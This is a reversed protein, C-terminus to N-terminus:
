RITATTSAFGWRDGGLGARQRDRRAELVLADFRALMDNAEGKSTADVNPQKLCKGAAYECMDMHWDIPVEPSADPKSVDLDCIPLRAVRLVIQLGAQAAAPPPAVRITRSGTDTAIALPAGPIALTTGAIAAQEGIDFADSSPPYPNRLNVDDARGLPATQTTPTADLVRLVSRHLPYLVKGVQLTIIGAPAIGTEILCWARRCLIKQAQNLYRTILEDSFLQDNDGDLLATRDDLLDGGVHALMESLKM